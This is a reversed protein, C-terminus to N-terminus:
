EYIKSNCKGRGKMSVPGPHGESNAGERLHRSDGGGSERWGPALAM